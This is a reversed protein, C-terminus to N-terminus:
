VNPGRRSIGSLGWLNKHAVNISFGKPVSAIDYGLFALILQLGSLVSTASLIITGLPTFIGKYASAIWHYLGFIGGMGFLFLGVPLEISALSLDRLYYNYFIRKFFNVINFFIFEPIIKTIKLNSTENGYFSMMPIDVVVAKLLNLRFLMDSEFFYRPNIKKLPLHRLVEANIATFGNTPDFINWYGSSMKTFFSLIANGFIRIPPMSNLGELYFFRNGKTYDAKGSLIPIVFNMILSPDMQGDGDIKVVVDAGDDLAKSYGVMVAGGVGLNKPNLIVKVRTDKCVSRVFRGVDDPSADDVVYIRQVEFGIKEIVEIIHSRVNYCPIVVAISSLNNM